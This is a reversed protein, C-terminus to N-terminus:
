CFAIFLFSLKPRSEFPRVELLPSPPIPISLCSWVTETPSMLRVYEALWSPCVASAARWAVWVTLWLDFPNLVRALGSLLSTVRPEKAAEERM